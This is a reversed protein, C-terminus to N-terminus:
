INEQELANYVVNLGNILAKSDRSYLILTREPEAPICIVQLNIGGDSTLKDNQNRSWTVKAPISIM